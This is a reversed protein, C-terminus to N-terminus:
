RVRMSTRWTQCQCCGPKLSSRLRWFLLQRMSLPLIARTILFYLDPSCIQGEYMPLGRPISVTIDMNAANKIPKASLKKQRPYTKNCHM